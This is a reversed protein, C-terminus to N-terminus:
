CPSDKEGDGHNLGLVHWYIGIRWEGNEHEADIPTARGCYLSHSFIHLFLTLQIGTTTDVGPVKLSKARGDGERVGTMTM